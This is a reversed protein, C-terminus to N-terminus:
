RPDYPAAVREAAGWPSCAGRGPRRLPASGRANGRRRPRVGGGDPNARPPCPLAPRDPQGGVRSPGARHVVVSDVTRVAAPGDPAGHVLGHLEGGKVLIAVRDGPGLGDPIHNPIM